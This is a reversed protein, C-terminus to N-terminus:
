RGRQGGGLFVAKCNWLHEDVKGYPSSAPLTGPVAFAVHNWPASNKRFAVVINVTVAALLSCRRGTKGGCTCMTSTPWGLTLDNPESARLPKREHCGGEM